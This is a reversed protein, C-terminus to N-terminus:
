ILASAKLGQDSKLHNVQHCNRSNQTDINVFGHSSDAFDLFCNQFILRLSPHPFDFHFNIANAMLPPPRSPTENAM